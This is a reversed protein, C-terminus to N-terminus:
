GSPASGKRAKRPQSAVAGNFGPSTISSDAITFARGHSLLWPGMSAASREQRLAGLGDRGHSLLWPGMSAISTLIHKAVEDGRGHSLLWPGM